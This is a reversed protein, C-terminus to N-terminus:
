KILGEKKLKEYTDLSINCQDGSRFTCILTNVRIKSKDIEYIPGRKNIEEINSMSM